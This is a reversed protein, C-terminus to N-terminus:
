VLSRRGEKLRKIFDLVEKREDEGLEMIYYALARVAEDVTDMHSVERELKALREMVQLFEVVRGQMEELLKSFGYLTLNESSMSEECKRYWEDYVKEYLAIIEGLKERMRRLLIKEVM